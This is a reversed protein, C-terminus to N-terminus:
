LSHVPRFCARSHEVVLLVAAIGSGKSSFSKFFAGARKAKANTAHADRAAQACPVDCDLAEDLEGADPDFVIPTEM